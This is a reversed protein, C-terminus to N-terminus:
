HKLLVAMYPLSNWGHEDLLQFLAERYTRSHQTTRTFSQVTKLVLEPTLGGSAAAGGILLMKLSAFQVTLRVYGDFLEVAGAASDLMRHAVAQLLVYRELMAELWLVDAGALYQEHAAAYREVVRDPEAALSATELGRNFADVCELYRRGTVGLSVRLNALRTLLRLQVAPQAPIGRWHEASRPSALEVEFARLSTGVLPDPAEEQELRRLRQLLLGLWLLREPVKLGRDRLLRLVLRSRPNTPEYLSVREDMEDGVTSPPEAGPRLRVLVLEDGEYLLLRAAEPCALTGSFFRGGDVPQVLRPYTACVAPLSKEGLESHIRCLGTPALLTCRGDPGLRFRAHRSEDGGEVLEATTLVTERLVGELLRDYAPRDIAINWGGCCTDECEGATCRFRVFPQPVVLADTEHV